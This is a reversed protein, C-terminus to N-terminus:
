HRTAYLRYQKEAPGRVAVLKGKDRIALIGNTALLRQVATQGAFAPDTSPGNPAFLSSGTSSCSDLVTGAAALGLLRTLFAGRKLTEADM